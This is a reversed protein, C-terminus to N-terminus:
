VNTSIEAELSFFSTTENLKNFKYNLNTTKKSIEILGIGACGDDSLTNKKLVNKQLEVLKENSATRVQEIKSTLSDISLSSLFNGTYIRYSNETKRVLFIGQAGDEQENIVLGHKYVNQLAEVIVSFLRNKVFDKSQKIHADKYTLSLISNVLDSNFEGKYSMIINDKELQNSWKFCTPEM